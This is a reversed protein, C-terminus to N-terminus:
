YDVSLTGKALDFKKSGDLSEIFFDEIKIGTLSNAM